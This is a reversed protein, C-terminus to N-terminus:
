GACRVLAERPVMDDEDPDPGEERPGRVQRRFIEREIPVAASKSKSPIRPLPKSRPPPLPPPLPPLPGVSYAYSRMAFPAPSLAVPTRSSASIPPTSGLLRVRTHNIRGEGMCM